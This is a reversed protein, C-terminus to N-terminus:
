HSFAWATSPTTIGILTPVPSVSILFDRDREQLIQYDLPPFVYSAKNKVFQGSWLIKLPVHLQRLLTTRGYFINFHNRFGEGKSAEM